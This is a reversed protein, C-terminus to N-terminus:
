VVSKRDAEIVDAKLRNAVNREGEYFYTWVAEQRASIVDCSSLMKWIFRRGQPTSLVTRLDDLERTRKYKEKRGAEKVQTEDAVNTM